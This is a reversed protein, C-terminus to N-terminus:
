GLLSSGTGVGPRVVIKAAALISCAGGLSHGVFAVESVRGSFDPDDLLLQRSRLMDLILAAQPYAHAPPPPHPPPILQRDISPSTTRQLSRQYSISPWNHHQPCQM